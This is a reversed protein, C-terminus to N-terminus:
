GGRSPGHIVYVAWVDGVLLSDQTKGTHSGVGVNEFWMSTVPDVNSSAKVVGFVKSPLTVAQAAVDESISFVLSNDDAQLSGRRSDKITCVRGSVVLEIIVQKSATAATLATL